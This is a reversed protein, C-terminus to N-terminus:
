QSTIWALIIWSPSNGGKENEIVTIMTLAGENGKIKWKLENSDSQIGKNSLIWKHPLFKHASTTTRKISLQSPFSLWQRKQQTTPGEVEFSQNRKQLQLTRRLVSKLSAKGVLTPAAIQAAHSSTRIIKSTAVSQTTTPHVESYCAVKSHPSGLHIKQPKNNSKTQFKPNDTDTPLPSWFKKQQVTEAHWVAELFQKQQLINNGNKFNRSFAHLCKQM